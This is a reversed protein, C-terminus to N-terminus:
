IKMVSKRESRSRLILEEILETLSVAIHNTEWKRILCILEMEASKQILAQSIHCISM